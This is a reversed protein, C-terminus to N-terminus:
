GRLPPTMSVANGELYYLMVRLSKRYEKDTSAARWAAILDDDAGLQRLLVTAQERTADAADGDARLCDFLHAAAVFRYSRHVQDGRERGGKESESTHQVQWGACTRDLAWAAEADSIAAGDVTGAMAEGLALTPAADALPELRRNAYVLWAAGLLGAAVAVALGGTAAILGAMALIALALAAINLVLSIAGYVIRVTARFTEIRAERSTKALSAETVGPTMAQLRALKETTAADLRAGAAASMSDRRVQLALKDFRLRMADRQALRRQRVGTVIHGVAMGIGFINGLVGLWPLAAALKGVVQAGTALMGTAIGPLQVIGDRAMALTARKHCHKAEKLRIERCRHSLYAGAQALNGNVDRVPAAAGARSALKRSLRRIKCRSDHFRKFALTAEVLGLMSSIGGVVGVGRELGAPVWDIHLSTGIGRLRGFSMTLAAAAWNGYLGWREAMLPVNVARAQAAAMDHAIGCYVARGTPPKPIASPPPPPELGGPAPFTSAFTRGGASSVPFM